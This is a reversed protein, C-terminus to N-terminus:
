LNAKGTLNEVNIKLVQVRELMKESYKPKKDYGCKAMILDLAKIKAELDYTFYIKGFGIISEYKQTWTCAQEKGIIEIPNDLEFCINNNKRIIDLKKGEKACHLYIFIDDGIKEYGFNMPVIYPRGEDCMAMRLVDTKEFIKFIENIDEIKREVRRM